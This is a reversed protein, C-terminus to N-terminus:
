DRALVDIIPRPACSGGADCQKVLPVLMQQMATLDDIKQKILAQKCAALERTRACACAEDLRLLELFDSSFTISTLAALLSKSLFIAVTM